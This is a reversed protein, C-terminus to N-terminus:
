AKTPLTLHTYSVPIPAGYDGEDVAAEPAPAPAAAAPEDAAHAASPLLGIAVGALLLRRLSLGHRPRSPALVQSM